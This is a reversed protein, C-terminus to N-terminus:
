VGETEHWDPEEHTAVPDKTSWDLFSCPNSSVPDPEDHALASAGKGVSAAAFGAMENSEAAHVPGGV